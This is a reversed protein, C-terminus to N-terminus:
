GDLNGLIRSTRCCECELNKDCENIEVQREVGLNLEQTQMTKLCNDCLIVHEAQEGQRITLRKVM